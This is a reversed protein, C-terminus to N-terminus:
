IREIGVHLLYCLKYIRVYHFEITLTYVIFDLLLRVYEVAM